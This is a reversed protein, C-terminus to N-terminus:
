DALDEEIKKIEDLVTNYEEVYSKLKDRQESILQVPKPEKEENKAIAKEIRTVRSKMSPVKKRLDDLRAKKRALQVTDSESSQNGDNSGGENKKPEPDQDDDQGQGKVKDEENQGDDELAVTGANQANTKMTENELKDKEEQSLSQILAKGEETEPKKLGLKLMEEDTLDVLDFYGTLKYRLVFAPGQRCVEGVTVRKQKDGERIIFPQNKRHLHEEKLRVKGM